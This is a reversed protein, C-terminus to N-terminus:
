TIQAFFVSARSSSGLCMLMASSGDPSLAVSLLLDPLRIGLRRQGTDTKFIIAQGKYDGVIFSDGNNAFSADYVHDLGSAWGSQQWVLKGTEVNWLSLIGGRCVVLLSKEDPTTAFLNVFHSGVFRHIVTADSVRYLAVSDWSDQAVFRKSDNFVITTRHRQNPTASGIGPSCLCALLGTIIVIQIRLSSLTSQM